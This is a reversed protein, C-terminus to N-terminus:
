IGTSNQKAPNRGPLRAVKKGSFTALVLSAGDPRIQLPHVGAKPPRILESREFLARWSILTDRWQALRCADSRPFSFRETVRMFFRPAVYETHDQIRGCSVRFPWGYGCCSQERLNKM